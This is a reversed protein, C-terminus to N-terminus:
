FSKSFKYVRYIRTTASCFIFLNLSYLFIPIYSSFLIMASFVIFADAREIISKDYHMSKNSTNKYLAGALIFSSFHLLLSIMFTLYAIHYIPYSLSFGLMIASEVTRDCILDLYAGFQNSKKRLRAIIGDFVDCIGSLWLFILALIKQNLAISFGSFLGFILALITIGNASIPIFSLRIAIINFLPDIKSRFYTEIM